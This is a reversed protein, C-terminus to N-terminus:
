QEGRERSLRERNLAEQYKPDDIKGLTEYLWSPYDYTDDTETRGKLM